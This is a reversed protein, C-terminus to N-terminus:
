IPQEVGVVATIVVIALEEGIKLNSIQVEEPSLRIFHIEIPQILSSPKIILPKPIRRNMRKTHSHKHRLPLNPKKPIHPILM